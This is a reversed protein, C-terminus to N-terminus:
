REVTLRGAIAWYNPGVTPSEGMGLTTYDVVFADEPLEPDIPFMTPVTMNARTAPNSQWVSADFVITGPGEVEIPEIAQRTPDDMPFDLGTFKGLYGGLPEGHFDGGYPPSYTRLAVYNDPHGFVDLNAAPFTATEFLCAPADSWRWMFSDTSLVNQGAFPILPKERFMRLGWVVNGDAFRWDKNGAGARGVPKILPFVPPTGSSTDLGISLAQGLGVIWAKQGYGVHVAALRFYYRLNAATTPATPVRLGASILSGTADSGMGCLVPDFGYSSTARRILGPPRRILEPPCTRRLSDLSADLM